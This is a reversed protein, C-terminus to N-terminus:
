YNKLFHFTLFCSKKYMKTAMYCLRLSVNAKCGCRRTWRHRVASKRSKMSSFPTAFRFVVSKLGLCPPMFFLGPTSSPPFNVSLYVCLTLTDHGPVQARKSSERRHTMLMCKDDVYPSKRNLLCTYTHKLPLITSNTLREGGFQLNWHVLQIIVTSKTWLKYRRNHLLLNEAWVKRKKSPFSKQSCFHGGKSVGWPPGTKVQWVITCPVGSGQGKQQCIM